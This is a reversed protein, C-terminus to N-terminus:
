QYKIIRWPKQLSFEKSEMLYRKLTFISQISLHPKLKSCWFKAYFGKTKDDSNIEVVFCDISSKNFKVLEEGVVKLTYNITKLKNSKSSINHVGLLNTNYSLELPLAQLLLYIGPGNVVFVFKETKISSTYITNNTNLKITVESGEQYHFTVQKNGFHKRLPRLTTADFVENDYQHHIDANLDLNTHFARLIEGEQKTSDKIFSYIYNSEDSKFIYQFDKIFNTDIHSAISTQGLISNISVLFFLKCYILYKM